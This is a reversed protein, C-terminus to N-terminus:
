DIVLKAKYLYLVELPFHWSSKERLHDVKMWIWTIDVLFKNIAITDPQDPLISTEKADRMREHLIEAEAKVAELTWEGSKVALLEERDPRYVNLQGTEVFEIGMRYLRLLHSANKVDYGYKAVIAKRKAGMRGSTAGHTMRKFQDHAYGSFAHYARLSSFVDRNKRLEHFWGSTFPCYDEDRLWLTELVTPNNKILLGIYKRFSFVDFDLAQDEPYKWNDFQSLGILREWDEKPNAWKMEGKFFGKGEEIQCNSIM